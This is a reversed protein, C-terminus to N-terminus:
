DLISKPILKLDMTHKIKRLHVHGLRDHWLNQNSKNVFYIQNEAKNVFYNIVNLKFLGESVYGRGIFANNKTIVVKNCDLIIKYGKQILQSRSVLNKRLDPVYLIDM